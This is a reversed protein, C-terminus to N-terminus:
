PQGMKMRMHIDWPSSIRKLFCNWNKRSFVLHKNRMLSTQVTRLCLFDSNVEHAHTHFTDLTHLDFGQTHGCPLAIDTVVFVKNCFNFEEDGVKKM